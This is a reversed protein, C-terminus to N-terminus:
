DKKCSPVKSKDGMTCRAMSSPTSLKTVLETGLFWVLRSRILTRSPIMAIDVLLICCSLFTPISVLTVISYVIYYIHKDTITSLQSKVSTSFYYKLKMVKM